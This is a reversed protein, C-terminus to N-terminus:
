SKPEEGPARMVQAWWSDLPSPDPWYVDPASSPRNGPHWDVDFTTHSNLNATVLDHAAGLTPSDSVTM